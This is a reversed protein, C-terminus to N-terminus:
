FSREHTLGQRKMVALIELVSDWEDSAVCLGLISDCYSQSLTKGMKDQQEAQSLKQELKTRAIRFPNNTAVNADGSTKSGQIIIPSRFHSIDDPRSELMFYRSPSSSQLPPTWSLVMIVQLTWWLLIM